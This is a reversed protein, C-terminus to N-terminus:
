KKEKDNKMNKEIWQKALEDNKRVVEIFAGGSIKQIDEDFMEAVIDRGVANRHVDNVRRKRFGM